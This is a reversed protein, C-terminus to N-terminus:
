ATTAFWIRGDIPNFLIAPRGKGTGDTGFFVPSSTSANFAPHTPTGQPNRQLDSVLLGPHKPVDSQNPWKGSGNGQARTDEPEGLVVNPSAKSYTWDLVSPDQYDSWNYYNVVRQASLAPRSGFAFLGVLVTLAIASAAACAITRKQQEAAARLASPTRVTM